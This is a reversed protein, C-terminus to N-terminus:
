SGAPVECNRGDWTILSVTFEAPSVTRWLAHDLFYAEIRAPSLLTECRVYVVGACDILFALSLMVRLQRLVRLGM